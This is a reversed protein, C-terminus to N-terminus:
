SYFEEDEEEEELEDVTTVDIKGDDKTAMHFIIFWPAVILIVLVVERM